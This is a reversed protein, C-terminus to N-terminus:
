NGTGSAATSTTGSSTGASSAGGTPGAGTDSVSTAVLTGKANKVGQVVLTDGPHVSTKAVTVSKTLKTSSSLTVKVTNGSSDTLYVTNGNVGSVKGFSANGGAFPGAGGGGGGGFGARPGAGAAGTSAAGTRAGAPAAAAASASNGLQGKEVRVGGYFGAAAVLVGALAATRKSWLKRRPRGPHGLDQQEQTAWTEESGQYPIASM